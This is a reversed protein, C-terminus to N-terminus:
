KNLRRWFYYGSGSLLLFFYLGYDIIFRYIYGIVIIKIIPWALYFIGALGLISLIIKANM